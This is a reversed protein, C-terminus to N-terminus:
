GVVVYRGDVGCLQYVNGICSGKGLRVACSHLVQGVGVRCESDVDLEEASPEGVDVVGAIELVVVSMNPLMTLVILVIIFPGVAEHVHRRGVSFPLRKGCLHDDVAQHRERGYFSPLVGGYALPAVVVLLPLLLLCLAYQSAHLLQMFSEAVADVAVPRRRGKGDAVIVSLRLPREVTHLLVALVDNARLQRDPCLDLVQQKSSLVDVQVTDAANGQCGHVGGTSFILRQAVVRAHQAVVSTQQAKPMPQQSDAVLAWAM